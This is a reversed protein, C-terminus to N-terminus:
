TEPLAHGNRFNYVESLHYQGTREWYEKTATVPCVVCLAVEKSVSVQYIHLGRFRLECAMWLNNLYLSMM